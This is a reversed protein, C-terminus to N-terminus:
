VRLRDPLYDLEVGVDPREALPRRLDLAVEGAVLLRPPDLMGPLFGPGANRPSPRAPTPPPGAPCSRGSRTRLDGRGTARRVGREAVDVAIM